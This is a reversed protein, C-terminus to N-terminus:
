IVFRVIIGPSYSFAGTTSPFASTPAATVGELTAVVQDGAQAVRFRGQYVGLNTGVATASGGGAVIAGTASGEGALAGVFQDTVIEDLAIVKLVPGPYGVLRKYFNNASGTVADIVGFGGSGDSSPAVATYMAVGLFRPAATALTALKLTGLSGQTYGVLNQSASISNAATLDLDLVMGQFYPVGSIYRPDTKADYNPVRYPSFM